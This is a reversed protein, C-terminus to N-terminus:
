SKNKSVVQMMTLTLAVGLAVGFVLIMWFGAETPKSAIRDSFVLLNSFTIIVLLYVGILSVRKSTTGKDSM